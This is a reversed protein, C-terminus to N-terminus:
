RQHLKQARRVSVCSEGAGSIKVVSEVSSLHLFSQRELTTEQKVPVCTACIIPYRFMVRSPNARSPIELIFAQFPFANQTRLFRVCLISRVKM